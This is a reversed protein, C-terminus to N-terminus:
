VLVAHEAARVADDQRAAERVAVVEAAARQGLERGDHVGHRPVGALTAEHQADAVAELDQALRPQQGPRQDGVAREAEHAVEDGHPHLGGVREEGVAAARALHELQRDLVALAAVDGVLARERRELVLLADDEAVGVAGPARRWLRVRVTGEAVDGAHAVGPPVDDPEHRVGLVRDLAKRRCTRVLPARTSCPGPSFAPATSMPPPSAATNLISLWLWGENTSGKWPAAVPTPPMRRSTNVMPARGIAFRSESRKP